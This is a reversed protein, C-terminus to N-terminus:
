QASLRPSVVPRAALPRRPHVPGAEVRDRGRPGGASPAPRRQEVMRAAFAGAVLRRLRTHEPPDMNLMNDPDGTIGPTITPAGPVSAAARSFRPDSLVTRVAAHDTAVWVGVGDALQVRALPGQARLLAHEPEDDLHPPTGFPFRLLAHSSSV